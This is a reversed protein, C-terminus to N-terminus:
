ILDLKSCSTALYTTPWIPPLSSISNFYSGGFSALSQMYNSLLSLGFLDFASLLNIIWVQPIKGLCPLCFCLFLFDSGQHGRKRKRRKNEERGRLNWSIQSVPFHIYLIGAHTSKCFYRKKWMLDAASSFEPVSFLKKDKQCVIKLMTNLLQRRPMFFLFLLTWNSAWILNSRLERKVFCLCAAKIQM